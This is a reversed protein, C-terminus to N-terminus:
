VLTVSNSFLSSTILNFPIYVEDHLLSLQSRELLSQEGNIPRFRRAYNWFSENHHQTCHELHSFTPGCTQCGRNNYVSINMETAWLGPKMKGFWQAKKRMTWPLHENLFLFSFFIVCLKANNAQERRKASLFNTLNIIWIPDRSWRWNLIQSIWEMGCFRGM